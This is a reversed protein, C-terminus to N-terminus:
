SVLKQRNLRKRAKQAKDKFYVTAQEVAITIEPDSTKIYWANRWRTAFALSDLDPNFAIVKLIVDQMGVSDPLDAKARSMRDKWEQVAAVVKNRKTAM